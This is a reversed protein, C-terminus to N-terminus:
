PESKRDGPALFPSVTARDQWRQDEMRFRRLSFPTMSFARGSATPIHRIVVAQKRAAHILIQM